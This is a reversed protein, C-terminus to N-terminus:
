RAMIRIATKRDVARAADSETEAITALTEGYGEAATIQAATAGNSTLAKMIADARSQSLKLNGADSGVKDTYGGIKIKLNKYCGLIAVINKIQSLSAGTLKSTGFEFNMNDFNIWNAKKDEANFVANKDDLLKVLNSEIGGEFAEIESGCALKVKTSVPAIAAAAAPTTSTATTAAGATTTTVTTNTDAPTVASPETTTTTNAVEAGTTTTADTNRCSKLWFLLAAIALLPLLWKLWGMGGKTETDTNLSSAMSAAGTAVTAAAVKATTSATTAAETSKSAATAVVTAAATVAAAANTNTNAHATAEGLPVVKDAFDKGKFQLLANLDARSKHPCSRGIESHDGMNGTHEQHNGGGMLCLIYHNDEQKVVYREPLDCNKLIAKIGREMKDADPYAESRMVIQSGNVWAFFHDGNETFTIFGPHESSTKGINSQYAGCDLYDDQIETAM